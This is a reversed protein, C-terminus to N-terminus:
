KKVNTPVVNEDRSFYSPRSRRFFSGALVGRKVRNQSRELPGRPRRSIFFRIELKQNEKYIM